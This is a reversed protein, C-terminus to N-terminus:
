LRLLDTPVTAGRVRCGRPGKLKNRGIEDRLLFNRTSTCLGEGYYQLNDSSIKRPQRVRDIPCVTDEFIIRSLKRRDGAPHLM